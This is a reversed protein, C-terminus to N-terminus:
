ARRARALWAKATREVIDEWATPAIGFQTTTESGDAIFPADFQYLVGAVEKLLPVFVGGGRVMWRPVQRLRPKALGCADHLSQLVQRVSQAPNSPVIWASGWAREDAGLVALTAAVDDIATWTHPQYPDAFVFATKGSLTSHAYRALLGGSIPVTPGIYDSSRAETVRARGADYGRPM